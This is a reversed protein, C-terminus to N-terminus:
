RCSATQCMWAPPVQTQLIYLKYDYAACYAPINSLIILTILVAIVLYAAKKGKLKASIKYIDLLVYAALLVLPISVLIFYRNVVDIFAYQSLSETGFFLYLFTFWFGVSAYMLPKEKRKFALYTGIFALFLIFGLPYVQYILIPGMIVDLMTVFNLFLNEGPNNAIQQSSYESLAGINGGSLIYFTSAYVLLSLTLGVAFAPFSRRDFLLVAIPLGLGLGFGGLKVFITLGFILGSALFMRQKRKDDRIGIFIVYLAAGYIVGLLMDPLVRTAYSFVFPATVVLFSALLGAKRGFLKRGIFFAIAIIMAYEIVNPLIATVPSIGFSLFSVAVLSPMLYGFASPHETISFNGLMMQRAYSIYQGDDFSYYPGSYFYAAIALGCLIILVLILYTCRDDVRSKEWSAKTHGASARM